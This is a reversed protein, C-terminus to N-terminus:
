KKKGYDILYAIIKESHSKAHKNNLRNKYFEETVQYEKQYIMTGKPLLALLQNGTRFYKFENISNFYKSKLDENVFQQIIVKGKHYSKINNFLALVEYDNLYHLIYRMFIYDYSGKHTIINDVIDPNKTIDIDISISSPIFTKLLGNAGGYDAVIGNSNVIDLIEKTSDFYMFKSISDNWTGFQNGCDIKYINEQM